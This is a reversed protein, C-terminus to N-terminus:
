GRSITIATLLVLVFTLIAVAGHAFVTVTPLGRGGGRAHKGGRGTLWRTFMVFGLLDVVILGGFASWAYVIRATLLFAVWTALALVALTPHGLILVAPFRTVKTGQGRLGGDSLWRALLYFGLGATLVWVVLAAIEVGTGKGAEARGGLTGPFVRSPIGFAAIRDCLAVM